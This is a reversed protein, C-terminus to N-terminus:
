KHHQNHTKALRHIPSWYKSNKVHKVSKIEKHKNEKNGGNDKRGTGHCTSDISYYVIQLMRFSPFFM